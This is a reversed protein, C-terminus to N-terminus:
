KRGPLDGPSAPGPETPGRETPGDDGGAVARLGERWEVYHYPVGFRDHLRRIEAHFSEYQEQQWVDATADCFFIRCGFPRAPHVGCRGGVQYPCGTGDWALPLRLPKSGRRADGTGGAG